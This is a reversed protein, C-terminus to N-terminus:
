IHILSLGRDQLHRAVVYGDGGNGGPGCLVLARRQPQEVNEDIWRASSAGALEMLVRGPLGYDEIARRDMERVQSAFAILERGEADLASM